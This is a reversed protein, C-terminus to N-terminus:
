ERNATLIDKITSIVIRNKKPTSTAMRIFHENLGNHSSCDRVIIGRKLLEKFLVTSTINAKMTNVLFFNTSSNYAKLGSIKNVESRFKETWNRIKNWRKQLFDINRMSEIAAAECANSVQFPSMRILHKKILEKSMFAYGVRLGALEHAKSFTRTVTINNYTEILDIASENVFEGYAEDFLFLTNPYKEIINTIKSPQIFRSTPNNPNCFIVLKTKESISAEIENLPISFGYEEKSYIFKTNAKIDNLIKEFFTFNPVIHVVEDGPKVNELIFNRLINESGCDVLIKEFPINYFESLTKRLESNQFNRYENSFRAENLLANIVSGMPRLPSINLSIDIVNKKHIDLSEALAESRMKEPPIPDFYKEVPLMM